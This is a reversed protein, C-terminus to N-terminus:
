IKKKISNFSWGKYRRSFESVIHSPNRNNLDNLFPMGWYLTFLKNSKIDKTSIQELINLSYQFFINGFHGKLSLELEQLKQEFNEPNKIFDLFTLKNFYGIQLELLNFFVEHLQFFEFDMAHLMALKQPNLSNRLETLFITFCKEKFENYRM